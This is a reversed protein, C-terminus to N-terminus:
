GGAHDVPRQPCRRRWWQCGHRHVAAEKRGPSQHPPYTDPFNSNGGDIIIDGPSLLPVLQDIVADVPKGAQVMLMVKRPTKLTAVFHPLDHSGVLKKGAGRGALFEDVKATTRNFVGVTFGRSEMNLILNEGMVALGILGIDATAECPPAAPAVPMHVPTTPTDTSM